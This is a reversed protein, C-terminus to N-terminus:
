LHKFVIYRNLKNRDSTQNKAVIMRNYIKGHYKLRIEYYKTVIAKILQSRHCLLGQEPPCDHNFFQRPQDELISRMFCALLVAKLNPHHVLEDQRSLFRKFISEARQVVQFVSYSASILGGRNKISTLSASALLIDTNPNHLLADACIDCKSTSTLSRVIYGSIYYFINETLADSSEIASHLISDITENEDYM